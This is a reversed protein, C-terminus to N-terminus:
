RGNNKYKWVQLCALFIREDNKNLYPYVKYKGERLQVAMRVTAKQTGLENWILSYAATQLAVGELYTGTKIDIIVTKNKFKGKTIKSIRDSTGGFQWKTSYSCYEIMSHEIGFDSAFTIWSELYPLLLPNLSTIDLMGQDWRSCVEHVSTGLRSKQELVEARVMPLDVIGLDSLIQTTGPIERDGVFYKHGEPEFRFDTM